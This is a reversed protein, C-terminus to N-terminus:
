YRPEVSTWGHVSRVATLAADYDAESPLEYIRTAGSDVCIGGHRRLITAIPEAERSSRRILIQYRIAPSEPSTSPRGRRAQTTRLDLTYPQFLALPAHPTPPDFRYRTASTTSDTSHRM